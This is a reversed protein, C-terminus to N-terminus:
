QIAKQLIQKFELAHSIFPMHGAFPLSLLSINAQEALQQQGEYIVLRDQEGSILQVAINTISKLQQRKDENLLMKLGWELAMPEPAGRAFLLKQLHKIDNRATSSGMAQIALFRKLTAQQDQLLSDSFSDFIKAEVAYPWDNKQVFCPTSSVLILCEIPLHQRTALEIAPLGGMSWAILTSPRTVLLPELRDALMQSNYPKDVDNLATASHGYGPLDVAIILKHPYLRQLFSASDIWVSSNMAWGHIFVIQELADSAGWQQLHITM